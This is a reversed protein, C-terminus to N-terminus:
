GSVWAWKGRDVAQEPAQQQSASGTNIWRILMIRWRRTGHAAISNRSTLWFFFRVQTRSLCSSSSSSRIAAIAATTSITAWGSSRLSNPLRNPPLRVCWMTSSPRCSRSTRGSPRCWRRPRPSPPRGASRRRHGRSRISGCRNVRSRNECAPRTPGRCGARGARPSRDVALEGVPQASVSPAIAATASRRRGARPARPRDLLQQALGVVLRRM